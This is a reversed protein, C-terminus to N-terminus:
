GINSCSEKNENCKDAIWLDDFGFSFLVRTDSVIAEQKTIGDYQLHKTKNTLSFIFANEDASWNNNLYSPSITPFNVSSYGGFVRNM